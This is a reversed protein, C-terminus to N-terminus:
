DQAKRRYFKWMIAWASIKTRGLLGALFRGVQVKHDRSERVALEHDATGHAPYARAGEWLWAEAAATRAARGRSRTRAAKRGEGGKEMMAAADRRVPGAAAVVGCIRQTSAGPVPGPIDDDAELAPPSSAPSNVSTTMTRCPSVEHFAERMM